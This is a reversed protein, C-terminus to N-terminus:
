KFYTDYEVHYLQVINPHQGLHWLANEENEDSDSLLMRKVAVKLGKFTGPFLIGFMGEGLRNTTDFAIMM